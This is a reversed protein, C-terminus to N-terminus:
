VAIINKNITWGTVYNTTFEINGLLAVKGAGVTSPSVGLGGDYINGNISVAGTGVVSLLNGSNASNRVRFALDTILAGLARVDLRAGPSVAAGIHLSSNLFSGSGGWTISFIQNFSADLVGFSTTNSARIQAAGPGLSIYGGNTLELVTNSSNAINIALKGTGNVSFLDASNASNRVRFPLDTALAGQARIDLRTTAAPSAGIGLAKVTNDWFLLSDQQVVNGAGQFLVRGAVGSAIPTTGITIGSASNIEIKTSM